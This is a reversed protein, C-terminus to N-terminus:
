FIRLDEEAQTLLNHGARVKQDKGGRLRRSCLHEAIRKTTNRRCVVSLYVLHARRRTSHCELWRQFSTLSREDAAFTSKVATVM